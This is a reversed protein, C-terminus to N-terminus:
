QKTIEQIGLLSDSEIMLSLLCNYLAVELGFLIAKLEAHLLSEINAVKMVACLLVSWTNNRVVLGWGVEKNGYSYVVDVNLKFSSNDPPVWRTISEPYGSDNSMTTDLYDQQMSRAKRALDSPVRCLQNHFCHNRNNWILWCTNLLIVVLNKDQLWHFFQDCRDRNGWINEGVQLFDPCCIM